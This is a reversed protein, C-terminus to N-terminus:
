TLGEDAEVLRLGKHLANLDQHVRETEHEACVDCWTACRFMCNAGGPAPTGERIKKHKSM